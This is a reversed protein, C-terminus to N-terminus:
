ARTIAAVVDEHMAKLVEIAGVDNASEAIEVLKGIKITLNNLAIIKSDQLPDPPKHFEFPEPVYVKGSGKKIEARLGAEVLFPGVKGAFESREAKSKLIYYTRVTERKGPIWIKKPEKEEKKKAM